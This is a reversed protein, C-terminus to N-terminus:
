KTIDINERELNAFNKIDLEEKKEDFLKMSSEIKCYDQVKKLENPFRKFLNELKDRHIHSILSPELVKCTGVRTKGNFIEEYGFFYGSDISSTAFLRNYEKEKEDNV